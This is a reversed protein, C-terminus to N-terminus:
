SVIHRQPEAMAYQIGPGSGETRTILVTDRSREIKGMAPSMITRVLAGLGQRDRTPVSLWRFPSLM